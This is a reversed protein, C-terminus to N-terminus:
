SARGYEVWAALLYLADTGHSGPVLSLNLVGPHAAVDASSISVTKETPTTETIAATANGCETDGTNFFAQVDITLTTDTNGDKYVLLSVQMNQTTDLDPPLPIPAFQVENVESAAWTLRLAKDTSTNVRLLKPGATNGDPVGAETTNQIDNASIIRVTTLDLPIFGRALNTSLKPATVGGSALQTAGVCGSPLNATDCSFQGPSAVRVDETFTAM